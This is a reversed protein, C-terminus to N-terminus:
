VHLDGAAHFDPSLYLAPSAWAAVGAVETVEVFAFM